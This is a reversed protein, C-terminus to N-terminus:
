ENQYNETIHIQKKFLVFLIIGIMSFIAISILPVSEDSEIDYSIIGAQYLYLLTVTFGNNIFHAIIAYGLNRSFYFLYGFFAGLLMRPLFGYFQLHFASFLIATVWIAAHPNGFIQRFFKQILGRFLLEEGIAPVIAVAVLVVLFYGFSEFHILYDTLIKGQEEMRDIAGVISEPFEVSMNWEIFLSNVVMLSMTLGISIVIATPNINKQNFYYQFSIREYQKIFYLPVLIFSFIAGVSNACVLVLQYTLVPATLTLQYMFDAHSIDLLQYCVFLLATPVILYAGLSFLTVTLLLTIPNKQSQVM